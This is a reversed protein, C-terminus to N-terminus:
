DDAPKDEEEWPPRPPSKFMRLRGFEELFRGMTEPRDKQKKSLMRQVLGAFEETINKVTALLSPAPAKLHKMLLENASIGYYPAKGHALEHLTCGFSYMDSRQDIAQGRIQEPSMYSRTGQIKSRGGFLKALGSARKQALAFDILKVTGKEEVSLLFNDPKIDRHLWGHEHFHNLGLAMQKIVNPLYWHIRSVGRQVFYKMNPWPFLEMVVYPAGDAFAFEHVKIIGPHDMAHGVEYERKLYALHEKDKRFEPLLTKLALRQNDNRRTVEYVISTQGTMLVSVLRYQGIYEVAQAM